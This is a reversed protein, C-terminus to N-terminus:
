MKWISVAGDMLIQSRTEPVVLKNDCRVSYMINRFVGSSNVATGASNKSTVLAAAVDEAFSTVAAGEIRVNVVTSSVISEHKPDLVVARLLAHKSKAYTVYEEFTSVSRPPSQFDLLQKTLKWSYDHNWPKLGFFSQVKRVYTNRSIVNGTHTQLGNLSQESFQQHPTTFDSRVIDNYYRNSVINTKEKVFDGRYLSRLWGFDTFISAVCLALYGVFLWFISRYFPNSTVAQTRKGNAGNKSVSNPTSATVSMHQQHGKGTSQVGNSQSPTLGGVRQQQPTQLPHPSHPTHNSSAGVRPSGAGASVSHGTAGSASTTGRGQHTPTPTKM